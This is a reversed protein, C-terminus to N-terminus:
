TYCRYRFCWTLVGMVQFFDSDTVVRINPSSFGFGHVKPNAGPDITLGYLVRFLRIDTGFESYDYINLNNCGM